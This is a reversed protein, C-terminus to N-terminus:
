VAIKIDNECYIIPDIKIVTYAYKGDWEWCMLHAIAWVCVCECKSIGVSLVFTKTDTFIHSECVNEKRQFHMKVLKEAALVETM